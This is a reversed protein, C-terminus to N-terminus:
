ETTYSIQSIRLKVGDSLEFVLKNAAESSFAVSMFCTELCENYFTKGRLEENVSIESGIAPNTKVPKLGISVRKSEATAMGTILNGSKKEGVNTYVLMREGDTNQLYIRVVGEGEIFGTLRLSTLQFAEGSDILYEQSQEIFIDLDETVIDSSVFGTVLNNSKFFSSFDTQNIFFIGGVVMALSIVGLLELRHLREKTKPEVM